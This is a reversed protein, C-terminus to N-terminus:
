ICDFMWTRVGRTVSGRAYTDVKIVSISVVLMKRTLAERLRGDRTLSLPTVVKAQGSKQVVTKSNKM